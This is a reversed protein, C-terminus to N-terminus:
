HKSNTDRLVFIKALWAWLASNQYRKPTKEFNIVIVGRDNIHSGGRAVSNKGIFRGCHFELYLHLYMNCVVFSVFTQM